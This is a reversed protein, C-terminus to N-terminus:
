PRLPRPVPPGTSGAGGGGALLRGSCVLLCRGPRSRRGPVAMPRTMVASDELAIAWGGSAEIPPSDGTDVRRTVGSAAAADDSLHARPLVGPDGALSQARLPATLSVMSRPNPSLTASIPPPLRPSPRAVASSNAVSPAETAIKPRSTSASASAASCIPWRVRARTRGDRGVDGRGPVALADDLARDRLETTKIHEHGVHATGRISSGRIAAVLLPLAGPLQHREADDPQAPSSGTVHRIASASADNVDRRGTHM